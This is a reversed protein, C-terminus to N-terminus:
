SDRPSPSTYLLCDYTDADDGHDGTDVQTDDRDDLDTPTDTPTPTVTPTYTSQSLVLPFLTVFRDQVLAAGALSLALFLPLTAVLLRTKRKM